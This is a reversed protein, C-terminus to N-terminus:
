ETRFVFRRTQNVGASQFQSYLTGSTGAWGYFLLGNTLPIEVPADAIYRFLKTTTSTGTQVYYEFGSNLTQTAPPNSASQPGAPVVVLQAFSDYGGHRNAWVDQWQFTSSGLSYRRGEIPECLTVNIDPEETLNTFSKTSHGISRNM